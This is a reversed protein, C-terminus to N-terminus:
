FKIGISNQGGEIALYCYALSTGVIFQTVQMTTMLIKWKPKFGSMEMFNVNTTDDLVSQKGGEILRDDREKEQVLWAEVSDIVFDEDESLPPNDFTTSNHGRSHGKAFDTGIYLGFYDIQGGFGLGNTLQSTGYNFYQFNENINTSQYITLQPNLRFLFCNSNGFFKPYRKWEAAAFGGFVNNKKDRIVIITSGIDEIKTQFTTWSMGDRDSDFVLKWNDRRQEGERVEEVIFFTFIFFDEWSLLKSKNLIKSLEDKKINIQLFFIRGFVVLFIKKLIASNSIGTALKELNVIEKGEVNANKKTDNQDLNFKPISLTKICYQIFRESPEKLKASQELNENILNVFSTALLQVLQNGNNIQNFTLQSNFFEEVRALKVLHSAATRWDNLDIM